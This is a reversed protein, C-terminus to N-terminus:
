ACGSTKASCATTDTARAAQRMISDTAFSRKSVTSASCWNAYQGCAREQHVDLFRHRVVGVGLVALTNMGAHVLNVMNEVPRRDCRDILKSAAVFRGVDHARHGQGALINPQRAFSSRMLMSSRCATGTSVLRPCTGSLRSRLQPWAPEVLPALVEAAHGRSSKRDRSGTSRPISVVLNLDPESGFEFASGEIQDPLCPHLDPIRDDRVRKLVAWFAIAARNSADAQGILRQRKSM